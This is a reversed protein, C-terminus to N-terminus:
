GSLQKSITLQCTYPPQLYCKILIDYMAKRTAYVLGYVDPPAHTLFESQLYGDAMSLLEPSITGSCSTRFSNLKTIIYNVDSTSCNATVFDMHSDEMQVKTTFSPGACSQNRYINRIDNVNAVPSADVVTFSISTKLHQQTQINASISVYCKWLPRYIVQNM